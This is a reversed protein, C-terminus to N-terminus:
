DINIVVQVGNETPKMSVSALNPVLWDPKVAEMQERSHSTILGLTKCGAAQGSRVGAPADEVVLCRTPDVGARKAGLLYPDPEPKGKEVDESVVFADPIPVGVAKLASSAYVITASTCIAWKPKPLKHYPGIEAMIERVGPLAVIGHRGNKKSEAVIAEEFRRAEREQEDPDTVGCHIRLNEVTRVGHSSSLVQTVDLGPYKEAFLEWAGVVGDTSDVLTGDMDFLIADFELTVTPM